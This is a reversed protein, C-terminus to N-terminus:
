AAIAELGALSDDISRDTTDLVCDARAYEPERAALLAKLHELARPNGRMPRVDGQEAVRALHAEPSAKIWVTKYAGLIAGLAEANGAIGGATELVIRDNRRVLEAIVENELARYGEPGGLNFLDALSLGARAEIERTISVFPLGQREALLGGLTSKGAGRLGLLAIGRLNRRRHEIWKAVVPALGTQEANSLSAILEGLPSRADAPSAPPAVTVRDAPAPLFSAVDAALADALRALIGVSANAQGTELAALYRESVAATEALRKRSWGAAQRRARVKDGVVVAIDHQQM